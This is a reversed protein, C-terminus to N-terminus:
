SMMEDLSCLIQDEEVVQLAVEEEGERDQFLLILEWLLCM